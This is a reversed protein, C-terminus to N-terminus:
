PAMFSKWLIMKIDYYYFECKISTFPTHKSTSKNTRTHTHSQTCTDFVYENHTDAHMLKTVKTSRARSDFLSGAFDSCSQLATLLYKIRTYKKNKSVFHRVFAGNGHNTLSFNIHMVCTSPWMLFCHSISCFAFNAAFFSQILFVSAWCMSFYVFNFKHPLTQLTYLSVSLM